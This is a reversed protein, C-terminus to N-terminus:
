AKTLIRRILELQLKAPYGNKVGTEIEEDLQELTAGLKKLVETRVVVKDEETMSPHYMMEFTQNIIEEHKM